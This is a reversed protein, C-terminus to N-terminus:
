TYLKNKTFMLSKLSPSPTHTKLKVIRNKVMSSDSNTPQLNVLVPRNLRPLQSLKRSFECSKNSSILIQRSTGQFMKKNLLEDASMREQPNIALTWMLLNDLYINTDGLIDLKGHKAILEKINKGKFPLTGISIYYCTIGYSWMDAKFPDYPIRLLQEPSAYAPSCSFNTKLESPNGLTSLGFDGLKPRYDEDFLINDPKIDGHAINNQHLYAIADLLKKSMELFEELEYPGDKEIKNVLSGNACYELLIYLHNESRFYNYISIINPHYIQSLTKIENMYSTVRSEDSVTPKDIIKVAYIKGCGTHRVKYVHAYGGHGLECELELSNQKLTTVIESDDM